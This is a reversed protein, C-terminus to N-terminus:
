GTYFAFVQHLGGLDEQSRGQPRPSQSCHHLRVDHQDSWLAGGESEVWCSQNGKSFFSHISGRVLLCQQHFCRCEADHAPSDQCAPSCVPWHCRVCPKWPTTPTIEKHCGLCVPKTLQRPGVVMPSENMILEGEEVEKTAVLFRGLTDSREVRWPLRAM